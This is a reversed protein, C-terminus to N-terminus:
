YMCWYGCRLNSVHVEVHVATSGGLWGFRAKNGFQDLMFLTQLLSPWRIPHNGINKEKFLDCFLLPLQSIWFMMRSMMIDLAAFPM